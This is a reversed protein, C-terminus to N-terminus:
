QLQLVSSLEKSIKEFSKMGKMKSLIHVFGENSLILAQMLELQGINNAVFTGIGILFRVLVPMIKDSESDIKVMSVLSVVSALLDMFDENSDDMSDDSKDNKVTLNLFCTGIALLQNFNASGTQKLKENLHKLIFPKGSNFCLFNAICRLSMLENQSSTQHNTIITHILNETKNRPNKLLAVRLLDFLPFFQSSQISNSLSRGTLIDNIVEFDSIKSYDEESLHDSFVTKLKNVVKDLPPQQSFNLFNTEPFLTIKVTETKATSSDVDMYSPADLKPLNKYEDPTNQIIFNATTELDSLPLVHEETFRKAIEWPDENFNVALDVKQAGEEIEVNFVKDYMKGNHETKSAGASGMAQGILTWGGNNYQHVDVQRSNKDPRVMQVFGESKGPNQLVELGPIKALEEDSMGQQAGDSNAVKEEKQAKFNAKIEDFVLQQTENPMDKNEQFVYLYGTNTAVCCSIDNVDCDWASICPLEINQVQQDSPRYILLSADEGCSFTCKDSERGSM